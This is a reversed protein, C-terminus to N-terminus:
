KELERIFEIRQFANIKKASNRWNYIGGTEDFIVKEALERSLDDDMAIEMAQKDNLNEDYFKSYYNQVTAVKFNYDGISYCYLRVGGVQRCKDLDKALPDFVIVLSYNEYGKIEEHRLEDLLSDKLYRIKTELAIGINKEVIKTDHVTVTVPELTNILNYGWVGIVAIILLITITKTKM